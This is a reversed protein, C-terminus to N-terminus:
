GALAAEIAAVIEASNPEVNSPWRAILQGKKGVLWKNFNWKVDGDLGPQSTLWAFLPHQEAGRKVHMEAFQDFTAQNDASCAKIEETTGAQHGFDDSVFGLVEFGKDHYKRHVEGLPKYQPTYGCHSATNAVLLVKGRYKDMSAPQATGLPVASFAYFSGAARDATAAATAAPKATAGPPAPAERDRTTCAASLLITLAITARTTM